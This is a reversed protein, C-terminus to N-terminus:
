SALDPEDRHWDFPRARRAKPRNAGVTDFTRRRHEAALALEARRARDHEALAVVVVVVLAVLLLLFVWTEFPTLTM